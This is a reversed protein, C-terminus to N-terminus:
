MEIYEILIFYIKNSFLRYKSKVLGHEANRKFFIKCPGCSIAGYYSGKAPAGCVKCENETTTVQHKKNKSKNSSSKEM